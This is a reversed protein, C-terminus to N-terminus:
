CSIKGQVAHKDPKSIWEPMVLVINVNSEGSFIRDETHLDLQASGLFAARIGYQECNKVHDQM